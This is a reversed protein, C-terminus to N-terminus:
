AITPKPSIKTAGVRQHTFYTIVGADAVTFRTPVFEVTQSLVPRVLVVGALVLVATALWQILRMVVEEVLM